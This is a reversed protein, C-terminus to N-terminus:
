QEARKISNFISKAIAKMGEDSPHAAVGANSFQGLSNAKMGVLGSLGKIDVYSGDQSRCATSILSDVKPNTWWTGVCYLKRKSDGILITLLKKYQKEFAIADYKEFKVNDGIFVIVADPRFDEVFQLQGFDFTDVNLEFNSINKPYLVPRLGGQSKELMTAVVHSFDKDQQSAAMGWNGSWDLAASPTHWTMSNGLVLLRSVTEAKLSTSTLFVTFIIFLRLLGSQKNFLM